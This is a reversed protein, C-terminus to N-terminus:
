LVGASCEAPSTLKSTISFRVFSFLKFVVKGALASPLATVYETTSHELDLLPMFLTSLFYLVPSSTSSRDYSPTIREYSYNCIPILSVKIISTLKRFCQSCYLYFIYKMACTFVNELMWIM